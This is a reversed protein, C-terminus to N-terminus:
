SLVARAFYGSEMLLACCQDYVAEAILQVGVFVSTRNENDWLTVPFPFVSFSFPSFSLFFFLWFSFPFSSFLLLFLFAGNFSSMECSAPCTSNMHFTNAM